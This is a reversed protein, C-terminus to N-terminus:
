PIIVDLLVHFGIFEVLSCLSIRLTTSTCFNAVSHDVLDPGVLSEQFISGSTQHQQVMPVSNRRMIAVGGM